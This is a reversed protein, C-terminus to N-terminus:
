DVLIKMVWVQTGVAQNRRLKIAPLNPAAAEGGVCQQGQTRAQEQRQLRHDGRPRNHSNVVVRGELRDVGGCIISRDQRHPITCAV